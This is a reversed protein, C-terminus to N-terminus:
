QRGKNPGRWNKSETSSGEPKFPCTQERHRAKDSRNKFRWSCIHMWQGGNMKNEHDNDNRCTNGNYFVCPAFTPKDFNKKNSTPAYSDKDSTAQKKSQSKTFNNDRFGNSKQQFNLDIIMEKRRNDWEEWRKNDLSGIEIEVMVQKHATKITQLNDEKGAAFMRGFYQLLDWAYRNIKEKPLTAEVIRFAGCCLEPYTLDEYNVKEGNRRIYRHPWSVKRKNREAFYKDSHSKRKDKRRHCCDIDEDSSSDDCDNYKHRKCDSRSRRKKKIEGFPGLTEEEDETEDASNWEARLRKSSRKALPLTSQSAKQFSYKSEALGAEKGLARAKKLLCNVEARDMGGAKHDLLSFLPDEVEAVQGSAGRDLEVDPLTRQQRHSTGKNTSLSDILSRQEEVMKFLSALRDNENSVTTTGRGGQKNPSSHAVLGEVVTDFKNPISVDNFDVTDDLCADHNNSDVRGKFKHVPSVNKAIIDDDNKVCKPKIPKKHQAKSGVARSSTQGVHSVISKPIKSVGM